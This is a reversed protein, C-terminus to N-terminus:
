YTKCRTICRSISRSDKSLAEVFETPLDAWSAFSSADALRDTEEAWKRFKDFSVGNEGMFVELSQQPTREEEAPMLDPQKTEKPKKPQQTEAPAASTANSAPAPADSANIPANAEQQDFVHRDTKPGATAPTVTSAVEISPENADGE